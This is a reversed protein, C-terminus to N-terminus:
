RRSTLESAEQQKRHSASTPSPSPSASPDIGELKNQIFTKLKDPKVSIVSAGGVTREELLEMPPLQQSDIGQGKAEMGLSALKMMDSVPLNTDIYPDVAQLVKPFKLINSTTQMKEAVATLFKRQRETRTFDSTADHRFRVYQLATKGDLHQYGKKLNIDFEHGDWADSYKMDKEVDLDIGGIADVLAMFGQFDTYVYYQIPLGTFDSVTKMALSAGGYALAANIKDSGYGPIKVYTDRLISFLTAKKTVPDISAIMISDSRPPESNKKGRSDGGLLLINVRNKGEWKPPEEQSIPTAHNPNTFISDKGEKSLGNLSNYISLGYYGGYGLVCLCLTLMVWKFFRRM